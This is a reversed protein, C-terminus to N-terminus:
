KIESKLNNNFDLNKGSFPCANVVSVNKHSKAVLNCRHREDISPFM